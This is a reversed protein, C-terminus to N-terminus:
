NSYKKSQLVKQLEPDLASFFDYKTLAELEDVTVIYDRWSLEEGTSTWRCEYTNPINVAIVQTDKTIRSIDNDGNDLIVTIRWTYAPVQIGKDDPNNPNTVPIHTVTKLKGWDSSSFKIVSNTDKGISTGGQGYPGCIIYLEKSGNGLLDREYTELKQWLQQNNNPSQPIMNTMLFTEKNKESTSTRDGSPCMHGRDFYYTSFKYDIGIQLFGSPLSTDPAFADGRSVDGLDSSDLHWAVWNPTHTTDNYSITYTTKELLYNEKQTADKTANTPNGM